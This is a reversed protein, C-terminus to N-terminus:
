NSKTRYFGSPAPPAPDTFSIKGDAGATVTAFDSWTVMDTSRQVTYSRGPIGRFVMDAQGNHLTFDTLNHGQGAAPASLTITVTGRVSAGRADTILVDFTDTGAYGAPPTYNLDGALAVTGGHASPGFVATLSLADADPDSAQALIKAAAISMAKDTTGSAAYGAFVPPRNPDNITATVQLTGSETGNLVTSIDVIITENPDYVADPVSTLTISGTTSGAPIVISTASRTYDSTLMATGTFALNVTVPQSHAASLTAIVTAVGGAEAMPSGALGLTVSPPPTIALTPNDANGATVGYNKFSPWQYTSTFRAAPVPNAFTSSDAVTGVYPTGVPNGSGDLETLTGIIQASTASLKTYQVGFRYWTSVKIGSLANLVNKTGGM